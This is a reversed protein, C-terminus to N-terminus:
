TNASEKLLSPLARFILRQRKVIDPISEDSPTAHGLVPEVVAYFYKTLDNTIKGTKWNRTPLKLSGGLRMWLWLVRQCYVVKPDNRRTVSELVFYDKARASAADQCDAILEVALGLTLLGSDKEQPYQAIDFKTGLLATCMKITLDDTPFSFWTARWNTGFLKPARDLTRRVRAFDRELKRWFADRKGTSAYIGMQQDSFALQYERAMALLSSRGISLPPLGAQEISEDIRSWEEATYETFIPRAKATSRSKRKRASKKVVVGRQRPQQAPEQGTEWDGLSEKIPSSQQAIPAPLKLGQLHDRAIADSSRQSCGQLLRGL